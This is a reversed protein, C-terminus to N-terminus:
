HDYFKRDYKQETSSRVYRSLELWKQLQFQLQVFGKYCPKKTEKIVYKEYYFDSVTVEYPGKEDKHKSAAIIKPTLDNRFLELVQEDKIGAYRLFGKVANDIADEKAKDMSTKYSSIGTFYMYDGAELAGKKTWGPRVPYSGSVLIIGEEKHFLSCGCLFLIFYVVAVKM